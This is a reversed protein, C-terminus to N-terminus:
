SIEMIAFMALENTNPMNVQRPANFGLLRIFRAWKECGDIVHTGTLYKIGLSKLENKIVKFDRRMEKLAGCGLKEIYLHIYAVSGDIQIHSYGYSKGKFSGRFYLNKFHYENIIFPGQARTIRSVM